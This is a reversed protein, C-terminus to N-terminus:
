LFERRGSTTLEHIYGSRRFGESKINIVGEELTSSLSESVFGGKIAGNELHYVFSIGRKKKDCGHVARVVLKDGQLYM